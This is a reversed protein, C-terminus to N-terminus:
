VHSSWKLLQMVRFATMNLSGTYCRRNIDTSLTRNESSTAIQRGIVQEVPQRVTTQVELKEFLQAYAQFCICADM